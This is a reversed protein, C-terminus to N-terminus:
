VNFQFHPNPDSREIHMRVLSYKDTDMFRQHLDLLVKVKDTRQARKYTMVGVLAVIIIALNRIQELTLSGVLSLFNSLLDALCMMIM